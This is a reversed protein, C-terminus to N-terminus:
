AGPPNSPNPPNPPDSHDFPGNHWHRHWHDRRNRKLILSIGFVVLIIPWIYNWVDGKILNLNSLLVLIGICILVFGVWM